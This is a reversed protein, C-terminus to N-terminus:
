TPCKLMIAAAVEIARFIMKKRKLRRFTAAMVLFFLLKMILM